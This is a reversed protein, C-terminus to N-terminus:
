GCDTCPRARARPAFRPLLGCRPEIILILVQSSRTRPCFLRPSDTKLGCLCGLVIDHALNLLYSHNGGDISKRRRRFLVIGRSWFWCHVLDCM